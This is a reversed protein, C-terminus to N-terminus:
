NSMLFSKTIPSSSTIIFCNYYMYYYDTAYFVGNKYLNINANSLVNSVTITMSQSQYNTFSLGISIPTNCNFSKNNNNSKYPNITTCILVGQSSLTSSQSFPFNLNATVVM